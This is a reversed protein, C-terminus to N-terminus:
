KECTKDRIRLTPIGGITLPQSDNETHSPGYKFASVVSYPM